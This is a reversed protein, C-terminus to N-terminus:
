RPEFLDLFDSQILYNMEAMSLPTAQHALKGLGDQPPIWLNTLLYIKNKQPPPCVQKAKQTYDKKIERFLRFDPDSSPSLLYVWILPFL